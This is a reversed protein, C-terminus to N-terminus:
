TFDSFDLLTVPADPSGVSNYGRDPIELPPQKEEEPALTATPVATPAPVPSPTATSEATPTVEVEPTVAKEVEVSLQGACALLAVAVFALTAMAMIRRSSTLLFTPTGRFPRLRAPHSSVGYGAGREM